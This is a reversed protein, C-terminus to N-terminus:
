MLRFSYEACLAYLDSLLVLATLGGVEGAWGQVIFLLMGM